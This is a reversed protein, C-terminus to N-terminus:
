SYPILLQEWSTSFTKKPATREMFDLESGGVGGYLLEVEQNWSFYPASSCTQSIVYSRSRHDYSITPITLKKGM